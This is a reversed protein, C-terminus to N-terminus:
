SERNESALPGLYERSVRSVAKSEEKGLLRGRDEVVDVCVAQHEFRQRPLWGVLCTFLLKGTYSKLEPLAHLLKGM